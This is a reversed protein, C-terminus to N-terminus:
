ARAEAARLAPARRARARAPAPILQPVQGTLDAWRQLEVAVFEPAQEIGICTRGAAEAALLSGGSGLFPDYVLGAAPCTNAIARAPLEVPKETPHHRKGTPPRMVRWLDTAAEGGRSGLWRNGAGGVYGFYVFEYRSHYGNRRLTMALKDWVIVRPLLRLHHEFLRSYLVMNAWGGCVYVWAKPALVDPLLAFFLAVAALTLDGDIADGTTSTYNVGYPPDTWVLDAQRGDLARAVHERRTGDGCLVRHRGLQWLQGFEVRWQRRLEGARAMLNSRPTTLAASAM